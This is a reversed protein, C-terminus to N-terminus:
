VTFDPRTDSKLEKKIGVGIWTRLIQMTQSNHRSVIVSIPDSQAPMRGTRRRTKGTAVRTETGKFGGRGRKGGVRKRKTGTEREATGLFWWHVNRADFGVGKRGTREKTSTKNAGKGSKGVAAGINSLVEGGVYKSKIMRWGIAKRVGKYRSPVTSKVQKVLQRSAKAVAPRVIKNETSKRFTRLTKKLEELGKIVVQAM